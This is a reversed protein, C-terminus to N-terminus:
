KKIGIDGIFFADFRAMFADTEEESNFCMLEREYGEFILEVQQGELKKYRKIRGLFLRENGSILWGHKQQWASM